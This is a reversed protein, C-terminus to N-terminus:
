VCWATSAEPEAHRTYTSSVKIFMTDHVVLYTLATLATLQLLTPDTTSIKSTGWRDFRAKLRLHKLGTLQAATSLLEKRVWKATEYIELRTLASLQQLATLPSGDGV